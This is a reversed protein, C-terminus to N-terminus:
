LICYIERQRGRAGPHSHPHPMFPIRTLWRSELLAALRGTRETIEATISLLVPGGCGDNVHGWWERGKVVMRRWPREEVRNRKVRFGTQRQWGSHSLVSRPSTVPYACCGPCPWIALTQLPCSPLCVLANLNPLFSSEINCCRGPGLCLFWKVRSM